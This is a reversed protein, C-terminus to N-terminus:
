IKIICKEPHHLRMYLSKTAGGAQAYQRAHAFLYPVNDVRKKNGIQWRFQKGCLKCREVKVKSNEGIIVMYHAQGWRCGFRIGFRIPRSKM